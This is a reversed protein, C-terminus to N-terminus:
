AACLMSGSLTDGSVDLECKCDIEDIVATSLDRFKRTAFVFGCRSNITPGNNLYSVISFPIQLPAARITLSHAKRQSHTKWKRAEINHCKPAQCVREIFSRVGTRIVVRSGCESEVIVMGEGCRFEARGGVDM